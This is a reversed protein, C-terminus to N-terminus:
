VKVTTDESLQKILDVGFISEIFGTRVRASALQGDPTAEDDLGTYNQENKPIAAGRALSLFSNIRGDFTVAWSNSQVVKVEAQAARAPLLASLALWSATMLTLRRDTRTRDAM